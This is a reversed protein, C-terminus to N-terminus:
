VDGAAEADRGGSQKTGVAERGRADVGAVDEVDWCGLGLASRIRFESNPIRFQGFWNKFRLSALFAFGAWGDALGCLCLSRESGDCNAWLDRLYRLYAFFIESFRTLRASSQRHFLRCDSSRRGGTLLGDAGFALTRRLRAAWRVVRGPRAPEAEGRKKISPPAGEMRWWPSLLPSTQARRSRLGSPRSM